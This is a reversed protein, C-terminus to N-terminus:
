KSPLTRLAAWIGDWMHNIFFGGVVALVAFVAAAATFRHALKGLQEDTKDMSKALGEVRGDLKGIDKKIDSLMVFVHSAWSGEASPSSTPYEPRRLPSTEDAVRKSVM